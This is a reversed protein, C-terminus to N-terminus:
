ALAAWLFVAAALMGLITRVAHLRGWREILARTAANANQLPTADLTRNVPMVVIFTYPWNAVLVLAGALWRWDHTQWWAAAGLLFGIMALAAQMSKGRDYSPKWQTLLARDDLVLRAPHEAVTVYLAAGAFCSTVTLALIGLIM